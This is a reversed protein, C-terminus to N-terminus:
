RKFFITYFAGMGSLSDKQNAAFLLPIIKHLECPDEKRLDHLASPQIYSAYLAVKRKLESM